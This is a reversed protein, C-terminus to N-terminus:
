PSPFMIVRIVVWITVFQPQEPIYFMKCAHVAYVYTSKQKDTCKFNWFPRQLSHLIEASPPGRNSQCAKSQEEIEKLGTGTHTNLFVHNILIFTSFWSMFFTSMPPLFPALLCCWFQKQKAEPTSEAERQQDRLSREDWPSPPFARWLTVTTVEGRPQRPPM